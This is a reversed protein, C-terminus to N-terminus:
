LWFYRLHNCHVITTSIACVYIYIYIMV